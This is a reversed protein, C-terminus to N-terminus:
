LSERSKLEELVKKIANSLIRYERTYRNAKINREYQEVKKNLLQIDKELKM